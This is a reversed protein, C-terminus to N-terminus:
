CVTLDLNNGHCRRSSFSQNIAINVLLPIQVTLATDSLQLVTCELSDVYVTYDAV